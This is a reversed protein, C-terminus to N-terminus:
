RSSSCSRAMATSWSCCHCSSASSSCACWMHSAAPPASTGSCLAPPGQVKLGMATGAWSRLCHGCWRISGLVHWVAGPKASIQHTQSPPKCCLLTVNM